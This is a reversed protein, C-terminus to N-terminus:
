QLDSPRYVTLEPIREFDTDRSALARVGYELCTAVILSDNTLLGHETRVRQATHQRAEDSGLVLLNLRFIQRTLEWYKRLGSIAHHKSKLASATPRNILGSDMAERLMLRHCVESVVETTTVGLLDENRCREIMSVCQESQGLFGYVFINADVLIVSGSRLSPLAPAM